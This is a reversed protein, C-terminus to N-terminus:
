IFLLNFKTKFYQKMSETGGDSLQGDIFAEKMQELSFSREQEDLWEVDEPSREHGSMLIFLDHNKLRYLIALKIPGGKVKIAVSFGVGPLRDSAKIWQPM